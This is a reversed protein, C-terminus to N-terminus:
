KQHLLHGFPQQIAGRDKWGVQQVQIQLIEPQHLNSGRFPEILHVLQKQRYRGLRAFFQQNKVLNLIYGVPVTKDSGDVFPIPILDLDDQGTGVRFEERGFQAAVQGAAEDFKEQLRETKPFVQGPVPGTDAACGFKLAVAPLDHGTKM